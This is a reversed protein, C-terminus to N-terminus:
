LSVRQVPEVARSPFPPLQPLASSWTTRGPRFEFVAALMSLDATPHFLSVQTALFVCILILESASPLPSVELLRATVCQRTDVNALEFCGVKLPASACIGLVAASRLPGSFGDKAASRSWVGRVCMAQRRLLLGIKGSCNLKTYSTASPPTYM